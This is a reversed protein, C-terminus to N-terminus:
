KSVFFTSLAFIRSNQLRNLCSMGGYDPKAAREVTRRGRMHLSSAPVLPYFKYLNKYLPTGQPFIHINITYQHAQPVCTCWLFHPYGFSMAAGWWPAPNLTGLSAHSFSFSLASGLRKHAPSVAPFWRVNKMGRRWKKYFKDKSQLNNDVICKHILTIANTGMNRGQRNFGDEKKLMTELTDNTQNTKQIKPQKSIKTADGKMGKLHISIQPYRWHLTYFLKGYDAGKKDAKGHKVVKMVGYKRTPVSGNRIAKTVRETNEKSIFGRSEIVIRKFADLNDTSVGMLEHGRVSPIKLQKLTTKIQKEKRYNWQSRPKPKPKHLVGNV